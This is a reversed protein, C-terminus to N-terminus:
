NPEMVHFTGNSRVEVDLGAYIMDATVEGTPDMKLRELQEQLELPNYFKRQFVVREAVAARFRNELLFYDTDAQALAKNTDTLNTQIMSLQQTLTTVQGALETAHQNVAENTTEMETVKTNLSAIQEANHSLTSQSDALQNSLSLSTSQSEVLNNSLTNITVSSAAVQAQVSDLDNSLDLISASDTHHQATDGQKTTYLAYALALIVIGLLVLLISKMHYNKKHKGAEADAAGAQSRAALNAYVAHFFRKAKALNKIPIDAQTKPAAYEKPQFYRATPTRV